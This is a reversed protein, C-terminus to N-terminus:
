YSFESNQHGNEIVINTPGNNTGWAGLTLDACTVHQDKSVQLVAAQRPLRPPKVAISCPLDHNM